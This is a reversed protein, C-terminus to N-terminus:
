PSVRTQMTPTPARSSGNTPCFRFNPLRAIRSDGRRPSTPKCRLPPAQGRGNTPCLRLNAPPQDGGRRPSVCKRTPVVMPRGHIRVWTWCVPRRPRRGRRLSPSARSPACAGGRRLRPRAPPSVLGEGVSVPVRPRNTFRGVPLHPNADYPRTDGARRDPVPAPVRARRLRPRAPSEHIAGVPLRPNAGYPRTDGARRDPVPAPVRAASLRGQPPVCM